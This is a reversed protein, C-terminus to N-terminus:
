LYGLDAVSKDLASRARDFLSAAKSPTDGIATLGVVGTGGIASAM